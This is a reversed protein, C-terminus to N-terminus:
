SQHLRWCFALRLEVTEKAFSGNSKAHKGFPVYLPCAFEPVLLCKKGLGIDYGLRLGPALAGAYATGHYQYTADSNNSHLEVDQHQIISFWALECGLHLGSHTGDPKASQLFWEYSARLLSGTYTTHLASVFYAAPANGDPAIVVGSSISSEFGNQGTINYSGRNASQSEMGLLGGGFEITVMSNQSINHRLGASLYNRGPGASAKAFIDLTQGQMLVSTLLSLSSLLTIFTRSM